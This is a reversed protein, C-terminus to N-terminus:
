MCEYIGENEQHLTGVAERKFSFGTLQCEVFLQSGDLHYDVDLHLPNGTEISVSGVSLIPEVTISKNNAVAHNSLSLIFLIAIVIIHRKM